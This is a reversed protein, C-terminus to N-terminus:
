RSKSLCTGFAPYPAVSGGGPMDGFSRPTAAREARGPGYGETDESVGTPPSGPVMGGLGRVRSRTRGLSALYAALAKGIGEVRQLERTEAQLVRTVTGFEALLNEARHPGIGPLAALMSGAPDRDRLASRRGAGRRRRRTEQDAIRALWAATDAVSRTRLVAIGYGVMLSLMVGRYSNPSLGTQEVAVPDLIGEIVFMPRDTWGALDYAQRFLRGDSLSGALDAISKREVVVRPGIAVDGAPLLGELTRPWRSQLLGLLPSGREREDVVVVVGSTDLGIRNM